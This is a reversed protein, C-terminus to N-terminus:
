RMERSVNTLITNLAKGTGGALIKAQAHCLKKSGSM